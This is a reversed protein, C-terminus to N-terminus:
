VGPPWRLKRDPGEGAAPDLSFELRSRAPQLYQQLQDLDLGHARLEEIPLLDYYADNAFEGVQSPMCRCLLTSVAHDPAQLYVWPGMPEPGDELIRAVVVAPVESIPREVAYVRERVAPGFAALAARELQASVYVIEVPERDALVQWVLARGDDALTMRVGQVRLADGDASYFWVYSIQDHVTGAVRVTATAYYVVPVAPDVLPQGTDPVKAPPASLMGVVGGFGGSRLDGAPAEQVILPAMLKIHEDVGAPNPKFYDARSFFRLARQRLHQELVGHRLVRNRACGAQAAAIVLACLGLEVGLACPRLGRISVRRQLADDWQNCGASRGSVREVSENM